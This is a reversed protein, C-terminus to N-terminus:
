AVRRMVDELVQNGVIRSAALVGSWMAGPIGHGAMSSAGCIYLGGIETSPGPRHFLFQKPILAIGYSTGGTSGTFRTHTMPSSVECYDVDRKLGPFVREAAVLLREALAQKTQLYIPNKEYTGDAM